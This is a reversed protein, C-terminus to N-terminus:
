EIVGPYRLYNMESVFSKIKGTMDKKKTKIFEDFFPIVKVENVWVFLLM